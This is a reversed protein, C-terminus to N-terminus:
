PRVEETLMQLVRWCEAKATPQSLMLRPHFTAIAPVIGGDHNFPRLADGAHDDNTPLLARNTRDGLMLLRQPKALAVLTRMRDAAFALDRAEVMGGPPRAYFLAAMFIGARDMGIARLMADLLSGAKEAILTGAAMDGPDPMDTIIMLRASAPGSPLLMKGPWRREPAVSDVEALALFQELTEPKSATSPSAVSPTSARSTAAAPRLWDVAAEGVACEVGALQWWALYADAALAGSEQYQGRM